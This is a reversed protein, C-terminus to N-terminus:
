ASVDNMEETALGFGDRDRVLLVMKRLLVDFAHNLFGLLDCALILGASLAQPFQGGIM